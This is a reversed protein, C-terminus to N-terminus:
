RTAEERHYDLEARGCIRTVEKEKSTIMKEEKKREKEQKKL